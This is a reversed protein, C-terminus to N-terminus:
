EVSVFTEGHHMVDELNGEHDFFLKPAPLFILKLFDKQYHITTDEGFIPDYYKCRVWFCNEKVMLDFTCPIHKVRFAHQKGDPLIYIDETRSDMM